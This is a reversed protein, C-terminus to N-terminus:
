KPYVIKAKEKMEALTSNYIAEAKQKGLIEVIKGKETAFTIQPDVTVKVLKIVWYRDRPGPIVGSVQGPALRDLVAQWPEPIQSWHLEGLDWPSKVDKPLNPFKGAAVKEFPMGSKLDQLDKAIRPDNGRYFLQWVHFKTQFKKANKEFYAQAESDTVEAKGRLHRLYLASIEQRQFARLQAEAESLKRRYEPDKDLGLEVSKQYILENRVLTQLLNQAAELPNPSEGGHGGAARKSILKLDYETIPAGNVTAAVKSQLDADTTRNAERKEGCAFLSVTLLVSIILVMPKKLNKEGIFQINIPRTKSCGNIYYLPPMQM